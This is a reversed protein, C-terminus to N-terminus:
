AMQATLQGIEAGEMVGMEGCVGLAEIKGAAVGLKVGSGQAFVGDAVLDGGGDAAAHGGDGLAATKEVEMAGQVADGHRTHQVGLGVGRVFELGEAVDGEATFLVVQEAVSAVCERGVFEM